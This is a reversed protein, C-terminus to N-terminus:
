LAAFVSWGSWEWGRHNQLLDYKINLSKMPMKLFSGEKLFNINMISNDGDEGLIYFLEIIDFVM